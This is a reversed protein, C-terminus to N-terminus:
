TSWDCELISTSFDIQSLKEPPCSNIIIPPFCTFELAYKLLNLKEPLSCFLFTEEREPPSRLLSCRAIVKFSSPFAKSRSSGVFSKSMLVSRAKSSPSSLKAPQATTIECSLHNKSLIQVCMRAKSPMESTYKKSPLKESYSSFLLFRSPPSRVGLRM